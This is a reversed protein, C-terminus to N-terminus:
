NITTAIMNNFDIKMEERTGNEVVLDYLRMQSIERASDIHRNRVDTQNTNRSSLRRLMEDPSPPKIFITTSHPYLEKLTKAGQVDLIIICNRDRNNEIEEKSLGYWKGYVNAHEIFADQNIAKWLFEEETLFHYENGTEEERIDRTTCTKLKYLDFEKISQEVLTTKGSASVSSVIILPKM